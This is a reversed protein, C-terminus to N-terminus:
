KWVEEDISAFHAVSADFRDAEDSTWSGALADLDHFRQKREPLLGARLIESAVTNISKGERRAKERLAKDAEPDLNRITLV